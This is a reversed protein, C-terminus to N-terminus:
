KLLASLWNGVLMYTLQGEQLNGADSVRKITDVRKIVDGEGRGGEASGEDEEVAEVRGVDDAGEGEDAAEEDGERADVQEVEGAVIGVAGLREPAAVAAVGRPGVHDRADLRAHAHLGPPGLAAVPYADAAVAGRVALAQDAGVVFLLREAKPQRVESLVRILLVVRSRGHNRAVLLTRVPMYIPVPPAVQLDLPVILCYLHLRLPLRSVPLSPSTSRRRRCKNARIPLVPTSHIADEKGRIIQEGSGPSRINSRYRYLQIGTANCPLHKARPFLSAPISQTPLNEHPTAESAWDQGGSVVFWM